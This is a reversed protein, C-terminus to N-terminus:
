RLARALGCVADCRLRRVSLIAARECRLIQLVADLGAEYIDNRAEARSVGTRSRTYHKRSRMKGNWCARKNQLAAIRVEMKSACDRGSQGCGSAVDARHRKPFRVQPKIHYAGLGADRGIPVCTAACGVTTGDDIEFKSNPRCRERVRALDIPRAVSREHCHVIELEPDRLLVCAFEADLISVALQRLATPSKAPTPKSGFRRCARCRRGSRPYLASARSRDRLKTFTQFLARTAVM